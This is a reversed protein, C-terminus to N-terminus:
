QELVSATLRPFSVRVTCTTDAGPAPIPCTVVQISGVSSIRLGEDPDASPQGVLYTAVDDDGLRAALVEAGPDLGTAVERGTVTDFIRVRGDAGAARTLVHDGDAALRATAGPIRLVGASGERVVAVRGAGVRHVSTGGAADLLGEPEVRALAQWSGGDWELAFAGDPLDVYVRRDDIALVRTAGEVAVSTVVEGAALDGVRLEGGVDVWAVLDGRASVAFRGEPDQRGLRTRRGDPRVLVVQGDQDAYVAGQPVQAFSRVGPVSLAVEDLHLTGDTYWGVAVPNAEREVEVDPLGPEPGPRTAWWTWGALVVALVLAALGWRRAGRRRRTRRDARQRAVVQDLALPPVPVSDAVDEALEPWAPELPAPTEADPGAAAARAVLLTRYAHAARDGREDRRGWEDRLRALACVAVVPADEPTVGLLVLTRVFRPWRAEAYAAFDDEDRM